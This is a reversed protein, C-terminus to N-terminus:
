HLRSVCCGSPSTNVHVVLLEGVIELILTVVRKYLMGWVVPQIIGGQCGTTPIFVWTLLCQPLSKPSQIFSMSGIQTLKNVNLMAKLIPTERRESSYMVPFGKLPVPLHCM